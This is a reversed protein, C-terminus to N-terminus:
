HYVTSLKKGCSKKNDISKGSSRNSTDDKRKKEKKM